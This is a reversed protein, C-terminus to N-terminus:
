VACSQVEVRTFSTLVAAYMAKLYARTSLEGRLVLYMGVFCKRLFEKGAGRSVNRALVVLASEFYRGRMTDSKDRHGIVPASLYVSRQSKQFARIAVDLDESGGLPTGIGLGEDFIGVAEMVDGRLFCTNSSANRVVESINAAREAAFDVSMADVPASGYQCFWFGLAPNNDFRHVIAQLTGNPYWCDDDPFAVLTDRDFAGDCRAFELLLNRAASLSIVDSTTHVVLHRDRPPLAAGEPCSQLLLYLRLDFELPMSSIAHKVSAVMRNLLKNREESVVSTSFLRVKM